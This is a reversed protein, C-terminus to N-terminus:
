VAAHPLLLLLLMHQIWQRQPSGHAYAAFMTVSRRRMSYDIHKHTYIQIYYIIGVRIEVHGSFRFARNADDFVDLDGVIGDADADDGLHTDISVDYHEPVLADPLRYSPLVGDAGGNASNDDTAATAAAAAAAAAAVAAVADKSVFAPSAAISPLAATTVSTFSTSNELAETAASAASAAGVVAPQTTQAAAAVDVNLLLLLLPMVSLTREAVM